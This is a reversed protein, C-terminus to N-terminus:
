SIGKAYVRELWMKYRKKKAKVNSIKFCALRKWAVTLKM